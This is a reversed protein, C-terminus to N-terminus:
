TAMRAFAALGLDDELDTVVAGAVPEAINKTAAVLAATLAEKSAVPRFSNERPAGVGPQDFARVTGIKKCQLM